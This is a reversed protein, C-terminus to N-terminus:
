SLESPSEAYGRKPIQTHSPIAFYDAIASAINNAEREFQAKCNYHPGGGYSRFNPYIIAIVLTLISFIVFGSVVKKNSCFLKIFICAIFSGILIYSYHLMIYDFYDVFIYDLKNNM